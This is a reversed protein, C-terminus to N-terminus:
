KIQFRRRITLLLLVLMVVNLSQHVAAALTFPLRESAGLCARASFSEACAPDYGEVIRGMDIGVLPNLTPLYLFEAYQFWGESDGSTFVTPVGTTAALVLYIATMFLPVTIFLHAIPRWIVRGYGSAFGYFFSFLKEMIGVEREHRRRRSILGLAFFKQEDARAAGRDMAIKLTQFATECQKAVESSRRLPESRAYFALARVRAKAKALEHDGLENHTPVSIADLQQPLSEDDWPQAILDFTEDLAEQASKHQQELPGMLEGAGSGDKRLFARYLAQASFRQRNAILGLPLSEFRNTFALSRLYKEPLRDWRRRLRAGPAAHFAAYQFDTDRHLVAEHFEPPLAFTVGSFDVRQRFLRDQFSSFGLFFAGEFTMYPFGALTQWDTPQNVDLAIERGDLGIRRASGRPGHTDAGHPHDAPVEIRSNAPATPTGEDTPVPEGLDFAAYSLFEAGLFSTEDKFITGSFRANGAFTVSEFDTIGHFQGNSFVAEGEFLASSFSTLGEFVARFFFVDGLFTVGDFRVSGDFRAAVFNAGDGLRANQFVVDGGFYVEEFDTMGDLAAGHFDAGGAFAGHALTFDEFWRFHATFPRAMLAWELDISLAPLRHPDTTDSPLKGASIDLADALVFGTCVGAESGKAALGIRARVAETFAKRVDETWAEPMDAQPHKPSLELTEPDFLPLHFPDWYLPEGDPSLGFEIWWDLALVELAKRLGKDEAKNSCAFVSKEATDDLRTRAWGEVLAKRWWAQVKKQPWFFRSRDEGKALDYSTDARAM